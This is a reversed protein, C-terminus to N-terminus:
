GRLILYVVGACHKWLPVNEANGDSAKAVNLGAEPMDKAYMCTTFDPPGIPM